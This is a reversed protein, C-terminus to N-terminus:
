GFFLANQFVLKQFCSFFKSIQLKLCDDVDDVWNIVTKFVNRAFRALNIKLTFINSNERWFILMFFYLHFKPSMNETIKLCQSKPTIKIWNQNSFSLFFPTIKSSLNQPLQGWGFSLTQSSDSLYSFPSTYSGEGAGRSYKQGANELLLERRKQVWTLRQKLIALSGAQQWM